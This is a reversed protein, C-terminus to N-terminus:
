LQLDAHGGDRGLELRARALEVLLNTTGGADAQTMAGALRREVGLERVHRAFVVLADEGVIRDLLPQVLAKPRVDAAVLLLDLLADALGLKNLFTPVSEIRSRDLIM